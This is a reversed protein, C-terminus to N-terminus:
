RLLPLFQISNRRECVNAAHTPTLGRGVAGQKVRADACPGNFVDMLLTKQLPQTIGFLLEAFQAIMTEGERWTLPATERFYM